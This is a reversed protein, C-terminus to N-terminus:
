KQEGSVLSSAVAVFYLKSNHGCGTSSICLGRSEILTVILLYRYIMMIRRFSPEKKEEKPIKIKKEMEIKKIIKIKEIEEM